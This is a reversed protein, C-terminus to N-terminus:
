DIGFKGGEQGPDFPCTNGDRCTRRREFGRDIPQIPRGHRDYRSLVSSPDCCRIHHPLLGPAVMWSLWVQTRISCRHTYYSWITMDDHYSDRCDYRTTHSSERLSPGKQESTSANSHDRRDRCETRYRFRNLEVPVESQQVDDPRGEHHKCDKVGHQFPRGQEAGMGQATPSQVSAVIPDLARVITCGGGPPPTYKPGINTPTAGMGEGRRQQNATASLDDDGRCSLRDQEIQPRLRRYDAEKKDEGTPRRYM